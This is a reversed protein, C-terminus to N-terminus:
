FAGDDPPPPAQEMSASLLSMEVDGQRASLMHHAGNAGMLPRTEHILPSPSPMSYDGSALAAAHSAGTMVHTTSNAEVPVTVSSAVAMAAAAAGPLGHMSNLQEHREHKKKKHEKKLAKKAPQKAMWLRWKFFTVIFQFAAVVIGAVGYGLNLKDAVSTCCQVGGAEIVGDILPGPGFLLTGNLLVPPPTPMPSLPTLFLDACENLNSKLLISERFNEVIDSQLGAYMQNKCFTMDTPTKPNGGTCNNVSYSVTGVFFNQAVFQLTSTCSDSIGMNTMGMTGNSALLNYPMRINLDCKTKQVPGGFWDAVPGCSYGDAIDLLAKSGILVAIGGALFNSIIDCMEVRNERLERAEDELEEEEKTMEHGHRHKVGTFVELGRTVGHNM